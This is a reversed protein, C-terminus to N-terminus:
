PLNDVNLTMYRLTNGDQPRKRADHDGEHNLEVGHSALWIVFLDLSRMDGQLRMTVTAPPTVTTLYPTRRETM